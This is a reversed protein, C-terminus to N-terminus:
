PRPPEEPGSRERSDPLIGEARASLIISEVHRWLEPHTGAIGRNHQYVQEFVIGHREWTKGGNLYNQMLPLIRDIGHAFAAEETEAEEFEDWLARFERGTSEPLLAFLRDAAKQEREAKGTQDGYCYTDGADIEVIDHVLLMKIVRLQDLHPATQPILTAAALAVSWSHEASNEPRELGVPSSRRDVAKLKETEILFAFAEDLM